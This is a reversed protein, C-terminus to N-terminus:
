GALFDMLHGRGRQYDTLWGALSIPKLGRSEGPSDTLGEAKAGEDEEDDDDDVSVSPEASLHIREGV